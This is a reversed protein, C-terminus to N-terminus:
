LLFHKLNELKHMDFKISAKFDLGDLAILSQLSHQSHLSELIM